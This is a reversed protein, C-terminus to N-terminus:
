LRITVTLDRGPLTNAAGPVSTVDLHIQAGAALPALGFGDVTNSITAGDAITLTCYVASNQRVVLRGGRREAGGAGAAFIDRAVHADEMVLPPTADTQMALYGEVQMSLQGGSLTRLGQDATAGFVACADGSESGFLEDRVVGGRRDACGASVGLLQLDASAPSGFFGNVFPVIVTM